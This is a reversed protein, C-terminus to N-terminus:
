FNKKLIFLNKTSHFVIKKNNKQPSKIKELIEDPTKVDFFNQYKSIPSLNLTNLPKVSFFKMKLMLCDVNASTGNSCIAYEFDKFKEADINVIKFYNFKNKLNNITKTTMTPHPKFFFKYYKLKSVIKNVFDLLYETEELLIDGIIIIKKNRIKKKLPSLKGYRLPEIVFLKNKPFGHKIAEDKFLDNNLLYKDPNENKKKYEIKKKLYRLDWFRISSNFYAFLKGHNYKKWLKIFCYEWSQNEIIYLGKKQTPLKKLLNDLKKINLL